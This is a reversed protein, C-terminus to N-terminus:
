VYIYITFKMEIESVKMLLLHVNKSNTTIQENEEQSYIKDTFTFASQGM